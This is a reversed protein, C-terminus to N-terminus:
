TVVVSEWASYYHQHRPRRLLRRIIDDANCEVIFIVLANVAKDHYSVKM